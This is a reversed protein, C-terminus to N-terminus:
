YCGCGGGSNSDGGNAAERSGYIHSRWGTQLPTSDLAMQPKALTGREWAAVQTCGSIVTTIIFFLAIQTTKHM